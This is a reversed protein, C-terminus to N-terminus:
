RPISCPIIGQGSRNKWCKCWHTGIALIIIFKLLGFLQNGKVQFLEEMQRLLSKAADMKNAKQLVFIQLEFLKFKIGQEQVEEVTQKLM